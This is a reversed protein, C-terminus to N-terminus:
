SCGVVKPHDKYREIRSKLSPNLRLHRHIARYQERITLFWSHSQQELRYEWKWLHGILKSM